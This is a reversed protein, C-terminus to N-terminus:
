YKLIFFAHRVWIIAHEQPYKRVVVHGTGLLTPVVFYISM